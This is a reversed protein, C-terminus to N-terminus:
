RRRRPSIHPADLTPRVRHASPAYGEVRGVEGPIVRVNRAQRRPAYKPDAVNAAAAPDGHSHWRPQDNVVAPTPLAAAKGLALFLVWVPAGFMVLLILAVESV